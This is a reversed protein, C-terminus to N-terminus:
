FATRGSAPAAQQEANGPGRKRRSLAEKQRDARQRAERVLPAPLAANKEDLFKALSGVTPFRFLDVVTLDADVSDRLRSYLRVILLSHGGLDFFNDDVGVREIHLLEQWIATIARELATRPMTYPGAPAPRSTGRAALARRDVKGSPSLPLRDLLVFAAPIMHEPLRLQLFRRLEATSPTQSERPVVFAVLHRTEDAATSATDSLRRALLARKTQSLGGVRGPIDKM